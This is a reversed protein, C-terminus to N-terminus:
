IYLFIKNDSNRMKLGSKRFDKFAIKLSSVLSVLYYVKKSYYFCITTYRMYKGEPLRNTLLCYHLMPVGVTITHQKILM